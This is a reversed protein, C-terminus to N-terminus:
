PYHRSHPTNPLRSGLSRLAPRGPLPSRSVTKREPGPGSRPQLHIHSLVGTARRVMLQVSPQARAVEGLFELTQEM